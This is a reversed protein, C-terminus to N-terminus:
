RAFHMVAAGAAFSLVVTTAILVLPVNTSSLQQNDSRLKALEEDKKKLADALQLSAQLNLFTGSGAEYSTGNQAELKASSVRVVTAPADPLPDARAASMFAFLAVLASKM